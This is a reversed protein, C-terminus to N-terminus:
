QIYGLAKLKRLLLSDAPASRVADSEELAQMEYVPVLGQVMDGRADKEFARDLSRGDMDRAPPVGVLKLLTPAVDMIGAGHLKTGRRFPGGYGIFVGDIRHNGPMWQARTFASVPLAGDDYAVSDYLCAENLAVRLDWGSNDKTARGNLEVSKFLRKGDSTRFEQLTRRFDKLLPMAEDPPVIGHEERGRINLSLENHRKSFRHSDYMRTSSWDIGRGGDDTVKYNLNGVFELLPDFTVDVRWQKRLGFGHDSVIIVATEKDVTGLLEAIWEDVQIYYQRIVDGFMGYEEEGIGPYLRQMLKPHRRAHEHVVFRHFVRDIGELYVAFIDPQRQGLLDMATRFAVTDKHYTGDLISMHEDWWFERTGHDLSTYDPNLPYTTFRTLGKDRNAIYDENYSKLAAAWLPPSVVLELEPQVLRESVFVGNIQQAPWSVYWSVVDVELGNDSAIEWFAASKRMTNTVPMLGGAEPSMQVFGHIGHKDQRKGTAISTWITPSEIPPLSTRLPGSVGEEVLREFTPLAGEDILPDVFAWSVADLGILLVKYRADDTRSTAAENRGFHRLLGVSLALFVVVAVAVAAVRAAGIVPSTRRGARRLVAGVIGSLFGGLASVLVAAAGALVFGTTRASGDFKGHLFWLVLYLFTSPLLLIALYCSATYPLRIKLSGFLLGGVFGAIGGGIFGVLFHVAFFTFPIAISAALEPSIYKYIQTLVLENATQFLFSVPTQWVSALLGMAVGLVAGAWLGAGLNSRIDGAFTNDPNNGLKL